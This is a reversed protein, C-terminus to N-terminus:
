DITTDILIPYYQTTMTSCTKLSCSFLCINFVFNHGTQLESMFFLIDNEPIRVRHRESHSVKLWRMGSVIISYTRVTM